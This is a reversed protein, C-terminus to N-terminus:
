EEFVGPYHVSVQEMLWDAAEDLDFFFDEDAAFGNIPDGVKVRWGGDWFSSVQVNIELRYLKELVEQLRV